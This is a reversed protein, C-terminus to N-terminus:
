PRVKKHSEVAQKILSTTAGARAVKLIPVVCDKKSLVELALRDQQAFADISYSCDFANELLIQQSM